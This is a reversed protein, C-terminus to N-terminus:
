VLKLGWAKQQLLIFYVNRLLPKSTSLHFWLFPEIDMELASCPLTLEFRNIVDPHLVGLRGVSKGYVFVEACRGPFFTSDLPPPPFPLLLFRDFRDLSFPHADFLLDPLDRVLNTGTKVTPPWFDHLQELLRFAMSGFLSPSAGVACGVVLAVKGGWLGVLM